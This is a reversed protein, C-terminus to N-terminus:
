NYKKMKLDVTSNLVNGSGSFSKKEINNKVCLKGLAEISNQQFFLLLVGVRRLISVLPFCLGHFVIKHWYTSLCKLKVSLFRCPFFGGQHCVLEVIVLEM